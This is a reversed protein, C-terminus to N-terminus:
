ENRLYIDVQFTIWGSTLDSDCLFTVGFMPAKVKFEPAGFWYYMPCEIVSTITLNLTNRSLMESSFMYPYTSTTWIMQNLWIVTPHYGIFSANTIKMHIFMRSYGGVYINTATGINGYTLSINLEEVSIVKWSPEPQQSPFNTVNVNRTSDGYTGFSGSTMAVDTIDIKGDGNVDIWPDYELAATSSSSHTPLITFLTLILCLTALVVIVLDKRTVM